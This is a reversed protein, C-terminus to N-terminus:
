RRRMIPFPPNDERFGESEADRGVRSLVMAPTTVRNKLRFIGARRWALMLKHNHTLHWAIYFAEQDSVNGAWGPELLSEAHLDYLEPDEARDWFEASPEARKPL